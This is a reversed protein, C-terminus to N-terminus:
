KMLIFLLLGELLVMAGTIVVGNTLRHKKRELQDIEKQQDAIEVEYMEVKKKYARENESCNELQKLMLGSRKFEISLEQQQKESLTRYLSESAILKEILKM